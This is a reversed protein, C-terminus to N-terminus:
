EILLSKLRLENGRILRSDYSHCRPCDTFLDEVEFLYQCQNCVAQAEITHINIRANELVTKKVSVEMAFELAEVVVGSLMGVELEISLIRGGGAKEVEETAIEIINMAISLEHM